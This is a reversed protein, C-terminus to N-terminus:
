AEVRPWNHMVDYYDFRLVIYGLATLERDHRIDNRRQGADRHFEWGDLQVVIRSGILADVRRGALRAQQTVELGGRRCRWVFTSEVGSDSLDGVESALNRAAPHIWDIRRLQAVTATGAT